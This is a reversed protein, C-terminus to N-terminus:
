EDNSYLALSNTIFHIPTFYIYVVFCLERKAWLKIVRLTLRFNEINPVLHLIEDTVRCGNLSRICRIDLNKLLIDDRLDQDDPVTQLALRSFLVDM